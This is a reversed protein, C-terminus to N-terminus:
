GLILKGVPIEGYNYDLGRQRCSFRNERESKEVWNQHAIIADYMKLFNGVGESVTKGSISSVKGKDTGEYVLGGLDRLTQFTPVFEIRSDKPLEIGRPFYDKVESSYKSAFSIWDTVKKGGISEGYSYDLLGNQTFQLFDQVVKQQALQSYRKLSGLDGVLARASNFINERSTFTKVDSLPISIGSIELLYDGLHISLHARSENIIGKNVKEKHEVSFFSEDPSLGLTLWDYLIKPANEM